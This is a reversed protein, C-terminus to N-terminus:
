AISVTTSLTSTDYAGGLTDIAVGNEYVKHEWKIEEYDLTFVEIPMDEPEGSEADVPTDLYVAVLKVTKLTVIDAEQAATGVVKVRTIKVDSINTGKACAERLAPTALDISHELMISGHVSAGETRDAGKAVVPMDIGHRMARCTIQNEFGALKEEGDIDVIDVVFHSM